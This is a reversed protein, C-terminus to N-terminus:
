LMSDWAELCQRSAEYGFASFRAGKPSKLLDEGIEHSVRYHTELVVWREYGDAVLADLQAKVGVSGSGLLVGEPKGNVVVADKLHVHSIYPKIIEYGFPFPLEGEPDYIDNGPDWIAGVNKAGIGEIVRRLKAANPAFLSPDHEIAIFVGLREALGAAVGYRDLIKPLYEDFGGKKWFTFGRVINVGLKEGVAATKRLIELHAEFEEDSDVDCKFCPSSLGCVVLGKDACIELIKEIDAADFEHPLREWVSRLEVGDLGFEAALSAATEFDQSIEDTIVGRKYM